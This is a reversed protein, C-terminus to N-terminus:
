LLVEVPATRLRLVAEATKPCYTDWYGSFYEALEVMVAASIPVAAAVSVAVAVVPVVAFV